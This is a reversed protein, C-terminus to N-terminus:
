AAERALPLKKPWLMAVTPPLLLWFGSAPMLVIGVITTLLTVIGTARLNGHNASSELADVALGLAAMFFGSLMFWAVAGARADAGISDWLGALAMQGLDGSFVIAGFATHLVSVVVIWRGIWRSTM